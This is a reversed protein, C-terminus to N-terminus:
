GGIQDVYRILSMPVHEILNKDKSHVYSRLNNTSVFEWHPTEVTSNRKLLLGYKREGNVLQVVNVNDFGKAMTIAKRLASRNINNLISGYNFM